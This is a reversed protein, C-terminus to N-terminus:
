PVNTVRRARVGVMSFDTAGVVACVWQCLRRGNIPARSRSIPVGPPPRDVSASSMRLRARQRRASPLVPATFSCSASRWAATPTPSGSGDDPASALPPSDKSTCRSSCGPVLPGALEPSHWDPLRATADPAVAQATVGSPRQLPRGSDFRRRGAQSNGQPPTV